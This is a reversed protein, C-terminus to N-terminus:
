AARIDPHRESPQSLELGTVFAEFLKAIEAASRGDDAVECALKLCELRVEVSSM